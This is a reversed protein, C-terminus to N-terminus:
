AFNWNVQLGFVNTQTNNHGSATALPTAFNIPEQRFFGHTYGFDYSLCPNQQYRAGIGLITGGGVPDQPVRTRDNTPTNLFTIGTRLLWQNNAQFNLGLAYDVTDHYDFAMYVPATFGGPFVSNQLLIHSLSSWRAYFATALATFRCCFDQAISLQALAPLHYTARQDVRFNGAPGFVQSNGTANIVVPSKYNLGIRTCPVPQVLVGAHWGYGWGYLHNQVESDGPFSLPFGVMNSFSSTLHEVDFGAGVSVKDSIKVGISPGVDVVTGIVSRTATYRLLSDKSFSTNLAFPTTQGFGLVVNCAVPASIYFSPMFASLQTNASGSAAPFPPTANGTFQSSGKLGLAAVVLQSHQNLYTLGAPNAYGISADTPNAAWGAYTDGLGAANIFPINFDSAYVSASFCTLVTLSIVCLSFFKPRTIM